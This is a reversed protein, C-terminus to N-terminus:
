RAPRAISRINSARAKLAEAVAAKDADALGRFLDRQPPQRVRVLRARAIGLLASWAPWRCARRSRPSRPSLGEGARAHPGAPRRRRAPRPLRAAPRCSAAPSSTLWILGAHEHHGQLRVSAQQPGAADGPLRGVGARAVAHGRRHRHDRRTRLSDSARAPKAQLANVQELAGADGRHLRGQRKSAGPAGIPAAAPHGGGEAARREAPPHRQADRAPEISQDDTM